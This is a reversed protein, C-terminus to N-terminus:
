NHYQITSVWLWLTLLVSIVEIGGVDDVDEGEILDYGVEKDIYEHELWTMMSTDNTLKMPKMMKMPVTTVSIRYTSIVRPSAQLRRM